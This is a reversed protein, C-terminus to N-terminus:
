QGREEGVTADGRKGGTGADAGVGQQPQPPSDAPPRVGAGDGDQRPGQPHRLVADAGGDLRAAGGGLRRLPPHPCSLRAGGHGVRGQWNKAQWSLREM